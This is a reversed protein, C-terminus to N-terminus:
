RYTETVPDLTQAFDFRDTRCSLESYVAGQARSFHLIRRVALIPMEGGIGLKGRQRSDPYEIRFTQRGGTPRLDFREEVAMSLSGAKLDIAEIGSFLEPHLYIDEMLVPVGDVRSLRSFYYARAGRFPNASEGDIAVLSMPHLIQTEIAVGQKKFSAMTGGLSFLDVERAAERVFTGAGRRRVLIGRRVLTDTAQRATPRGIGYAAALRHESPIPTGPPYAGKRIREALIDALQRYLPIPSLPDLAETLKSNEGM